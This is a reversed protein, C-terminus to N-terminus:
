NTSDSIVEITTVKITKPTILNGIVNLQIASDLEDVSDVQNTIVRYWADRNSPETCDFNFVKKDEGVYAKFKKTKTDSAFVIVNENFSVVEEIEILQEFNLISQQLKSAKTKLIPRVDRPDINKDTSIKIDTVSPHSLVSEFTQILEKQNKNLSISQNQNLINEVLTDISEKAMGKAINPLSINVQFSASILELNVHAKYDIKNVAKVGPVKQIQYAYDVIGYVAEEILGFIDLGVNELSIGEVKFMVYQKETWYDIFPAFKEAVTRIAPKLEDTTEDILDARKAEALMKSIEPCDTFEEVLNTYKFPM